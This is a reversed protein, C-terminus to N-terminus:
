KQKKRHIYDCAKAIGKIRVLKVRSFMGLIVFLSILESARWYWPSCYEIAIVGQFYEPIQIEIRCDTGSDIPFLNGTVKDIARYNRYYLIPVEITQKSDSLNNCNVLYVDKDREIALIQVVEDHLVENNLGFPAGQPLYEGVGISSSSVDQEDCIYRKENNGMYNEVFYMGSIFSVTLLVAVVSYYIITKGETKIWNMAVAAVFTLLVAATGLFRWPFQIGQMVFLVFKGCQEIQNWPFYRTTMFLVLFSFLFTMKGLKEVQTGRKDFYLFCVVYIIFTLIFGGGLAYPMEGEMLLEESASYMLGHGQPFVSLLQSLTLARGAFVGQSEIHNIRVDMRMYDVFPIIFWLCMGVTALVAKILRIIIAKTFTKRIYLVCLVATLLFASFTSIIHCNILGTFGVALFLWSNTRVKLEDTYIRYLGYVVLPYFCMATYEGVAARLFICELRYPAMMYLFTGFIGIWRDKFISNLIIYMVICTTTNVLIIYWQYASQVSWGAIRLLAPIYLFLDGYFVSVPYGAGNLSTYQMRVPLQGALIANKIGEIRNLHFDLDHGDYLYEVFAPTSALVIMAGSLLLVIRNEKKHLWTSKTYFLYISNIIFCTLLTLILFKVKYTNTECVSIENVFLYNDGLFNVDIWYGKIPVNTEFTFSCEQQYKSLSVSQRGIKSSYFNSLSSVTYTNINTETSYGIRVQYSGRKLDIYPTRIVYDDLNSDDTIMSSDMYYGQNMGNIEDLFIANNSELESGRFFYNELPRTFLAVASLLMMIEAGIIIYKIIKSKEISFKM